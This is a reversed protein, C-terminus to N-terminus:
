PKHAVAHIFVSEDRSAYHGTCEGIESNGWDALVERTYAVSFFHRLHGNRCYLNEALRDGKGYYPDRDSKVSFVLVGGPRLVREIEAFVIRTTRDDFYHLALHSYVGDLSADAFPLPASLNHVQARVAVGAEEAAACAATIAIQSFDLARVVMGEQAFAVADHGQGCGLDAVDAPSDLPLESM